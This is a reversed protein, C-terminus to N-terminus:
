YWLGQGRTVLYVEGTEPHRFTGETSMVLMRGIGKTEKIELGSVKSTSLLTEGAVPIRRYEVETGGDLVNKLGHELRPGGDRPQGYTLDVRRPDFVPVGLYCPPAPLNEYGAAVAEAVDYYVPDDYGVGRAFARIGTSTFEVPYPESEVGVVARMADTIEYDADM